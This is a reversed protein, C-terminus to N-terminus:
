RARLTRFKKVATFDCTAWDKIPITSYELDRCYVRIDILYPYLFFPAVDESQIQTLSFALVCLMM